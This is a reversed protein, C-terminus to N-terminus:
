GVLEQKLLTLEKETLRKIVQQAIQDEELGKKIKQQLETDIVSIQIIDGDNSYRYNDRILYNPDLDHGFTNELLM